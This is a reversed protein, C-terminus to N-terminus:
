QDFPRYNPLASGYSFGKEHNWSTSTSRRTNRYSDRLRMFQSTSYLPSTQRQRFGRDHNGSENGYIDARQYGRDFDYRSGHSPFGKGSAKYKYKFSSFGSTNFTPSGFQYSMGGQSSFPTYGHSRYQLQYQSNMPNGAQVTNSLGVLILGSLLCATVNRLKVVTIQYKLNM